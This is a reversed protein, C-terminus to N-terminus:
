GGEKKWFDCVHGAEVDESAGSRAAKFGQSIMKCRLKWDMKRMVLNGENFDKLYSKKCNRCTKVSGIVAKRYNGEEWFKEISRKKKPKDKTINKEGTILDTTEYKM